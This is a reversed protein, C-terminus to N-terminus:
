EDGWFMDGFPNDGFGLIDGVETLAGEDSVPQEPSETREVPWRFFELMDTYSPQDACKADVLKKSKFHRTMQSQPFEFGCIWCEEYPEGRQRM